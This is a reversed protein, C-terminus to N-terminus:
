ASLRMKLAHSNRAMAIVEDTAIGIKSLLHMQCLAEMKQSLKWLELISPAKEDLKEDYHTLYNRADTARAILAGRQSKNGFLESFPAILQILRTRLSIENAYRLRDAIWKKRPEPCADVLISSITEFEDQPMVTDTSEKRHMVELAQIVSLFTREVYAGKSIQSALFLGIVPHASECYQLWRSLVEGLRSAILPYGFLAIRQDPDPPADAYPLTQTYIEIPREASSVNDQECRINSSVGTLSTLTVTEDLVFCMFNNLHFIIRSFEEMELPSASQVTVFPQESITLLKGTLHRETKWGWEFTITLGGPATATISQPPSYSFSIGPATYPTISLGSKGLWHDLGELSFVLKDFVFPEEVSYNHGVFARNVRIVSQPLHGFHQRLYICGDLTIADGTELTGSLRGPEHNALRVISPIDGADGVLEVTPRGNAAVRFIGHM